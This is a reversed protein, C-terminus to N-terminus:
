PRQEVTAAGPGARAAVRRGAYRLPFSAARYRPMDRAGTKANM